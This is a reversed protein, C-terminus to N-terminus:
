HICPVPFKGVLKVSSSVERKTQGDVSECLPVVFRYSLNVIQYFWWGGIMDGLVEGLM